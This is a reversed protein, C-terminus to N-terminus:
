ESLDRLEKSKVCYIYMQLENEMWMSNMLEDENQEKIQYSLVPQM